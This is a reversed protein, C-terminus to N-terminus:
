QEEGLAALDLKFAGRHASAAFLTHTSQQLALHVVRDAPLGRGLRQWVPPHGSAAFVGHDTALYARHPPQRDFLVAWAQTDAPLGALAEVWSAGGDDTSYVAPVAIGSGCALMSLPDEPHIAVGTFRL